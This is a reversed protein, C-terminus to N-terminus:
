HKVQDEIEGVLAEVHRRLGEVASELHRLEDSVAKRLLAVKEDKASRDKKTALDSMAQEIVVFTLRKMTGFVEQEFADSPLDSDELEGHGPEQERLFAALALTLADRGHGVARLSGQLTDGEQKCLHVFGDQETLVDLVSLVRELRQELKPFGPMSSRQSWLAMILEDLKAQASARAASGEAVEVDKRLEAIRYAM